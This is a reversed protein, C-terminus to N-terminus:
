HTLSQEHRGFSTGSFSSLQIYSLLWSILLTGLLSFRSTLLLIVGELFHSFKSIDSFPTYHVELVIVALYPPGSGREGLGPVHYQTCQCGQCLMNNILICNGRYIFALPFLPLLLSSPSPPLSSPPPPSFLIQWLQAHISCSIRLCPHLDPFYEWRRLFSKVSM